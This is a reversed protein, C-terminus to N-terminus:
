KIPTCSSLAMARKRSFSASRSSSEEYSAGGLLISGAVNVPYCPYLPVLTKATSWPVVPDVVKMKSRPPWASKQTPNSFGTLLDDYLEAM